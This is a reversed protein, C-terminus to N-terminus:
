LQLLRVDRITAFHKTNRTYLAAEHKAATAAILADPIALGHSLRYQQMLEIARLSIDPDVHVVVFRGLQKLLFREESKNAAGALVEMVSIASIALEDPALGEIISAVGANGKLYEIIVDSDLLVM